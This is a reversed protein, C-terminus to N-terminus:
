LNHMQPTSSSPHPFPPPYYRFWVASNRNNFKCKDIPTDTCSRQQCETAMELLSNLWQQHLFIASQFSAAAAAIRRARWFDIERNPWGRRGRRGEAPRLSRLNKLREKTSASRQQQRTNIPQSVKEEKERRFLAEERRSIFQMRDIANGDMVRRGRGNSWFLQLSAGRLLESSYLSTCLSFDGSRSSYVAARVVVAFRCWKQGNDSQRLTFLLHLHLFSLSEVLNPKSNNDARLVAAKQKM